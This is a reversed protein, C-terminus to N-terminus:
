EKDWTLKGTEVAVEYRAIKYNLKELTEDIQKRQELLKERQEKLLNYRAQITSDGQQYLNLYDIMVKIPLGANRMCTVLQIWGIDEEQYNRIGGVTRKVPPIMGIKEYYRLTDQSINLIESVEKITM